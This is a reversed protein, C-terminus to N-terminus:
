QRNIMRDIYKLWIARTWKAGSPGRRERDERDPLAASCVDADLIENEPDSEEDDLCHALARRTRERRSCKIQMTYIANGTSCAICVRARKSPGAAAGSGCELIVHTRICSTSPASEGRGDVCRETSFDEGYEDRAPSCMRTRKPSSNISEGIM